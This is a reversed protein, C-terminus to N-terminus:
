TGDCKYDVIDQFLVNRNGEGNVQAFMNETIANADLSVRNGYKNEVEYMRTDLIPNNHSIDIPLGHKDRLRKKVKAVDPGDGDIKIALEMNLYTGDFM